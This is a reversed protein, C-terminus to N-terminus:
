RTDEHSIRPTAMANQPQASKARVFVRLLQTQQAACVPDLAGANEVRKQLHSHKRKSLIKKFITQENAGLHNFNSQTISDVVGYKVQADAFSCFTFLLILVISKLRIDHKLIVLKLM